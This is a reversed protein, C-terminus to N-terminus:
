GVDRQQCADEIPMPPSFAESASPTAVRGPSRPILALLGLVGAGINLLALLAACDRAALWFDLVWEM